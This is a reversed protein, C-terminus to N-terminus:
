CIGSLYRLAANVWYIYVGSREPIQIKQTGRVSWASKGRVTLPRHVYKRWWFPHLAQHAGFCSITLVLGGQNNHCVRLYLDYKLGVTRLFSLILLSLFQKLNNNRLHLTNKEIHLFICIMFWMHCTVARYCTVNLFIFIMAHSTTNLSHM